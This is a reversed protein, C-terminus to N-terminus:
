RMPIRPIEDGLVPGLQRTPTASLTPDASPTPATNLAWSMIMPLENLHLAFNISTCAVHVPTKKTPTDAAVKAAYAYAVARRAVLHRLTPSRVARSGQRLQAEMWRWAKLFPGKYKRWTGPARWESVRAALRNMYKRVEPGEGDADFLRLGGPFFVKVM